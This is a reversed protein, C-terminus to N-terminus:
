VSSNRYVKEFEDAFRGGIPIERTGIFLKARQFSTIHALSVIFSQHVRCFQGPILKTEVAKLNMRILLPKTDQNVAYLKVYDKLGEIYLIEDHFLKIERYGSYVFFFTRESAESSFTNAETQRVRLLDHAKNVARLFREFPTPKVLYDVVNLEFGEVAYQEYATTLIVLPPDSLSRLFQIGTLTPMQIDLFLLDVTSQRIADRADFPNTYAGVLELFSIRRIDKQIVALAFPEDDIAICRINM